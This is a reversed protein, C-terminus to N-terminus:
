APMAPRRDEGLVDYAIAGGSLDVAAHLIMPWLLSGTGVYLLGTVLGITGTKLAGSVGQYIHVLGFAVGSLIAAPWPGLFAALYWILYGRYMIEECTGATVSLARFLAAERGTRPLFEAVSAMQARVGERGGQDLRRVASWQAFLFSVMLATIAAGVLLPVGGPLAFGLADPPRGARWWLAVLGLAVAWQMIMTSRYERARADPVGAQVRRVFRRFEWAGYFPLVTVLVVVLLHDLLTPSPM